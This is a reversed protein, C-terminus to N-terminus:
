LFYGLTSKVIKHDSWSYSLWLINKISLYSQNLYFLINEPFNVKEMSYDPKWAEFYGFKKWVKGSVVGSGIDNEFTTLVIETNVNKDDETAARTM